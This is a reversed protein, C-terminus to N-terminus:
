WGRSRLDWYRSSHQMWHLTEIQLSYIREAQVLDVIREQQSTTRGGKTFSSMDMWKKKRMKANIPVPVAGAPMSHDIYKGGKPAFTPRFTLNSWKGPNDVDEFLPERRDVHITPNWDDPPSPPSWGPLAVFLTSKFTVDKVECMVANLDDIEIGCEIEHADFCM